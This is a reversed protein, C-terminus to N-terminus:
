AYSHLGTLLFNVGLYTFLVAVFGLISLVASRTGAWGRAFRAHLFTAYVLWTILSWTEKPDWSWYSGWAVDAWIAGTIIGISLLPFGVAIARYNIDDLIKESPFGKLRDAGARIKLLYLVSVGFSVAFAAYGLFCTVVHATLWNSQLAPVLPRIGAQFFLSGMGLLLFPLPAVFAGLARTKYRIELLLYLLGLTWGFLVMSEYQNSVPVHGHGLEYSEIWRLAIGATNLALAVVWIGTSLRGMWRWRTIAQVVYGTWSVLYVLAVESILTASDM